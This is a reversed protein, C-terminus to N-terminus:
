VAGSFTNTTGGHVIETGSQFVAIDPSEGALTQQVRLQVTKLLDQHFINPCGTLALILPILLSVVLLNQATKRWTKTLGFRAM